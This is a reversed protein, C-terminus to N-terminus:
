YFKIDNFIWGTGWFIDLIYHIGGFVLMALGAYIVKKIKETISGEIFLFMIFLGMLAVVFGLSHVFAHLGSFMGFMSASFYDGNRISYGLFIWSVMLLFIRYSDLHYSISQSLFGFSLLMLVLGILAWSINIKKLWYVSVFIILLSYYMTLSRLYFDGEVGFISNVLREWLALLPFSFGHLAVYYFGSEPFYQFKAYTITKTIFISKAYEAYELIDHGKIPVTFIIYISYSIYGLLITLILIWSIRSESFLSGSWKSHRINILSQYISKFDRIIQSRYFFLLSVLLLLCLALYLGSSKGPIFLFSYYLVISTIAPGLGLSYLRIESNSLYNNRGILALSIAYSFIFNTIFFVFFFILEANM